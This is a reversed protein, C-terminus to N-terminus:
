ILIRSSMPTYLWITLLKKFKIFETTTLVPKALELINNKKIQIINIWWFMILVSVM